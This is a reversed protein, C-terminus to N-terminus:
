EGWEIPDGVRGEVQSAFNRAGAYTAFVAVRVLPQGNVEIQRDFADRCFMLRVEELRDLPVFVPYWIDFADSYPSGCSNRARPPAAANRYSPPSVDRGLCISDLGYIAYGPITQIYYAETELAHTYANRYGGEVQSFRSRASVPVNLGVAAISGGIQGSACDQVVHFAEHRLLILFKDAQPSALSHPAIVLRGDRYSGEVVFQNGVLHPRDNFLVEIGVEILAAITNNIELREASSLARQQNPHLRSLLAQLDDDNAIRHVAARAPLAIPAIALIAALGWKLFSKM